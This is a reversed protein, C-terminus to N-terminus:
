AKRGHPGPRRRAAAVRPRASCATGSKCPQGTAAYTELDNCGEDARDSPDLDGAALMPQMTAEM